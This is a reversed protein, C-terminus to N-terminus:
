LLRMMAASAWSDSIVNSLTHSRALMGLVQDRSRVSM